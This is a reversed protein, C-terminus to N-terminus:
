TSISQTTNPILTQLNNIPALISCFGAPLPDVSRYPVRTPRRATLVVQPWPHPETIVFRLLQVARTGRRHTEAGCGHGRRLTPLALDISKPRFEFVGGTAPHGDGAVTPVLGIPRCPISQISLRLTSDPCLRKATRTSLVPAFFETATLRM